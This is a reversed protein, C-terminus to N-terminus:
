EDRRRPLHARAREAEALPTQELEQAERAIQTGAARPRQDRLACEGLAMSCAGAALGRSGPSCCPRTTPARVGGRGDGPLLEVGTRRQCRAGGRGCTTARAVSGRHGPSPARSTPGRCSGGRGGERCGGPHRCRPRAGPRLDGPRREDRRVQQPRAVGSRCDDAIRLAPWFSARTQRDTRTRLDPVFSKM